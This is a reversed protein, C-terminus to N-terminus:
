PLSRERPSRFPRPQSELSHDLGVRLRGVLGTMRGGYFQGFWTGAFRRAVNRGAAIVVSVLASLRNADDILLCGSAPDLCPCGSKDRPGIDVLRPHDPENTVVQVEPFKESRRSRDFFQM